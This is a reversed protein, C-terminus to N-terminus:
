SPEEEPASSPITDEAATSRAAPKPALEPQVSVSRRKRAAAQLMTTLKDALPAYQLVTELHKDKERLLARLLYVNAMISLSLFAYEPRDILFSKLWTLVDLSM